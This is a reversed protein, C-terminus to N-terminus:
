AMSGQRGPSKLFLRQALHDVHLKHLVQAVCSLCHPVSLLPHILLRRDPWFSPPNDQSVLGRSGLSAACDGLM